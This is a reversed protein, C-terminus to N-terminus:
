GGGSSVQATVEKVITEKPSTLSSFKKSIYDLVRQYVEQNYQAPAKEPFQSM